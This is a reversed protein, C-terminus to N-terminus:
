TPPFMSVSRGDRGELLVTEHKAGMDLEHVRSPMMAPTVASATSPSTVATGRQLALASELAKHVCVRM